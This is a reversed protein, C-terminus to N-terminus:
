SRGILGKPWWGGVLEREAAMRREAMLREEARHNNDRLREMTITRGETILRETLHGGLSSGKEEHRDCEVAKFRSGKQM